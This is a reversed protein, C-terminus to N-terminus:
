LNSRLVSSLSRSMTRIPPLSLCMDTLSYRAIPLAPRRGSRSWVTTCIYHRNSLSTAISYSGQRLLNAIMESSLAGRVQPWGLVSLYSCYALHDILMGPVM